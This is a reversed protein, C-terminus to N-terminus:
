WTLLVYGNGAPFVASGGGGYDWVAGGSGTAPNTVDSSPQGTDLSVDGSPEGPMYGEVVSSGGVVLGCAATPCSAGYGSQGSRTIGSGAALVGTGGAGGPFSGSTSPCPTSAGRGGGATLITTVGTISTAGGNTGAGGISGTGGVGVAISYQQGPTVPIVARVYGGGGGGEGCPISPVSGGGGAGWAEVLVHTVNEPAIWTGSTTYERMGSLGMSTPWSVAYYGTPCSGTKSADLPSGAAKYCAHLVGQSDPISARVVTVGAALVLVGCAVVAVSKNNM